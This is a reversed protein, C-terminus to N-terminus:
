RLTALVARWHAFPLVSAAPLLPKKIKQTMIIAAAQSISHRNKITMPLHYFPSVCTYYPMRWSYIAFNQTGGGKKKFCMINWLELLLLTTTKPTMFHTPARLPTACGSM